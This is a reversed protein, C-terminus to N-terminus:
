IKFGWIQQSSCTLAAEVQAPAHKVEQEMGGGFTRHQGTRDGGASPAEFIFGGSGGVPPAPGRSSRTSPTCSSSNRRVIAAAAGAARRVDEVADRAAGGVEERRSIARRSGRLLISAGADLDEVALSALPKRRDARSSGRGGHARRPARAIDAFPVQMHRM